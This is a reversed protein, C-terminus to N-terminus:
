DDERRRKRRYCLWLVAGAAMTFGGLTYAQTGIGGTEPLVYEAANRKNSVTIEGKKIGNNTYTVSYGSPVGIEEVVYFAEGEVQPLNYWTHSWDNESNLTVSEGVATREGDAVWSPARYGSLAFEMSAGNKYNTIEISLDRDISPVTYVYKGSQFQMSLPTGGGISVTYTQEDTSDNSLETITLPSGVDVYVTQTSGCYFLDSTSRWVSAVNVTYYQQVMPQQYLQVAVAEPMGTTMQHNNEDLWIKQVQISTSENPVYITVDTGTKYYAILDPSIDAATITARIAEKVESLNQTNPYIVFYRPTSDKAYGVPQTVETLRILKGVPLATGSGQFFLIEGNADTTYKGDTSLNTDDSRVVPEWKDEATSDPNFWDVQFVAGPLGKTYDESDVKSVTVRGRKLVTAGSNTVKFEMNSVGSTEGNLGATNNLAVSATDGEDIVYRYVLVCALEDPLRVTFDLKQQDYSIQYRQTSIENGCKNSATEDYDYLFVQDMDLYAQVGNPVTLQDTLLLTDSNADLDKAGPNIVVTYEVTDNPKDEGDVLQRGSKSLIPINREVTTSQEATYDGFQARNTFLVSDQALSPWDFAVEYFIVIPDNKEDFNHGAPITISLTTTGDENEQTAYTPKQAGALNYVTGTSYNRKDDWQFYDSGYFKATVEGSLRMGAPLTDTIAIPDNTGDLNRWILRYGIKGGLDDYQLTASNAVYGSNGYQDKGLVYKELPKPKTYSVEATSTLTDVQGTNDLTWTEGTKMGTHDAQTPYKGIILKKANTVNADEKPTVTIAFARVPTTDDTSDVPVTRDVDSYYVVTIAVSANEGAPYPIKTGDEMELYLSDRLAAEIRSAIGYHKGPQPTGGISSVPDQITDVYTFSTLEGGPITVNANWEYQRIGGGQDPGQNASSKSLQWERHKVVVNQVDSYTKEGKTISATNSLTTGNAFVGTPTSYTITYTKKNETGAPFTYPLSTVADGNADTLPQGSSDQITFAIGNLDVPLGGAMLADNLMWGALDNGSPNLTITWNIVNREADNWGEKHIWAKSIETDVWTHSQDSYDETQAYGHNNLKASGDANETQAAATYTVVYKEGAELEELGTIAFNNQNNQTGFTLTYDTGATLTTESNEASVKKVTVSDQTYAGMVAGNYNEFIDGITIKQGDKTGNQTSVEITYSVTKDENLTGTKKVSVDHANGSEEQKQEIEITNSTGPFTISGGEGNEGADIQGQFYISGVFADNNAFSEDFTITILGDTTITYDGVEQANAGEGVSVRGSEEQIPRVNAPVQYTVIRSNEGVVGETISYNIYVRVNDGDKFQTSTVWQNNVLKQVSVSIVFESLDVAESGSGGEDAFATVRMLSYPSSVDISAIGEGVNAATDEEAPDAQKTEISAYTEAAGEVEYCKETHTHEELGCTLVNEETAIFCTDQHTHSLVEPKGCVWNGEANFCGATHKHPQLQREGCILERTGQKVIPGEKETCILTKEEAYCADTHKHPESEEKGCTLVTETQYCADGHHHEEVMCVLTGDDGYCGTGHSHDSKDCCLVQKQQRCDDTHTHGETETKGCSVRMEYTYCDGAHTHGPEEWTPIQYCADTHTHAKVEPLTCVLSGSGDYCSADHEHIVFDAYGCDSGCEASHTHVGTDKASCVLQKVVQKTYCSDSHQHEQIGCITEREMTIAPLILAYTTCFVVVCCLVSVLKKWIRDRRHRNHFQEASRTLDIDM